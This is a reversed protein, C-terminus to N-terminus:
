QMDKILRGSIRFLEIEALKATFRANNISTQSRLLNLQAERLQNTNIQGLKYLESMRTFNAEATALNDIETELVILSNEYTNWANLLEREMDLKQQELLHQSNEIGIQANQVRNRNVNGNFLNWQMTLGGSFGNSQNLLAFGAESQARNYGYGANLNLSPYFGSQAIRYNMRASQENLRASLIRSNQAMTENLLGNLEMEQSFVIDTNVAFDNDLERALLFSLTRKANNYDLITNLVNISDTNFDVKANLIDTSLAVGYEKKIELRKVRDRSIELAERNIELSEQLLAVQYFANSVSIITNEINVRNDAESLDRQTKLNKYTYLNGLGNFLTYNLNVSANDSLSEAGYVIQERGDAFEIKSDNNSYNVGAQANVSPLRGANGWNALNESIEVNNRSVLISFNKELALAVATSLTLTDQAFLQSSWLAGM